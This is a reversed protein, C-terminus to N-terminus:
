SVLVLVLARHAVTCSVLPRIPRGRTGSRTRGDTCTRAYTCAHADTHTHTRAPMGDEAAADAANNTWAADALEAMSNKISDNVDPGMHHSRTESAGASLQKLNKEHSTVM